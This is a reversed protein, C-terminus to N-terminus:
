KEDVEVSAVKSLYLLPVQGDDSHALPLYDSGCGLGTTPDVQHWGDELLVEVWVHGDVRNLWGFVQRCPLGSARGLTVLVDAYDWCHGYGQKLVQQCGYRSGTVEGGYRLQDNSSTWLLLQDLVEQPRKKGAVIKTALEQIEPADSPWFSTSALWRVRDKGEFPTIALSESVVRGEVHLFPMGARLQKADVPFAIAGEAQAAPRGAVSKDGATVKWTNLQSGMGRKRLSLQDAFIFGQSADQIQSENSKNGREWELFFNYLRNWQMDVSNKLPAADFTVRYAIQQPQIGLAYRSRLALKVEEPKRAVWEYVNTDFRAVFRANKKVGLIAQYAIEADQWTKGEVRNIQISEGQFDLTTNSLSTLQCKWRSAIGALQKNPVTEHKVVKWGPAQVPFPFPPEAGLLRPLWLLLCGILVLAIVVGRIWGVPLSILLPFAHFRQRADESTETLGLTEIVNAKDLDQIMRVWRFHQCGHCWTPLLKYNSYAGIRVMPFHDAPISRGCTRCCIRWGPAYGRKQDAVGPIRYGEAVEAPTGFVNLLHQYCDDDQIATDALHIAEWERMLHERADSLADELSVVPRSKLALELEALYRHVPQHLCKPNATAEM